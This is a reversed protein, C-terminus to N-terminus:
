FDPQDDLNKWKIGIVANDTEANFRKKKVSLNKHKKALAFIKKGFGRRELRPSSGGGSERPDIKTTYYNWLEGIGIFNEEKGTIELCDEWMEFVGDSNKFINKVEERAEPIDTFGDQAKLREYGDLARNLIGSLEKMIKRNLDDIKKDKEQKVDVDLPLVMLRRAMGETQDSIYPISNYTVCLKARNRFTFTNEFKKEIEVDANGTLAKIMDTERLSDKGAEEAFNALKGFLAAPSFQKNLNKLSVSSFNDKGIVFKMCNLISTKGNNGEGALVLISNYHYECGSVMYGLFEEIVNIFHQRDRTLNKMMLDWTPCEAKPDYDYPLCYLFGYEPSHPLLERTAIKLVGNKFNILGEPTDFFTAERGNNSKVLGWFEERESNKECIPSYHTQAFETVYDKSSKEFHTGNFLYIAGVGRLMIYAHTEEFFRRLDEPKREMKGKANISTFGSNKTAIHSPSKLSIPSRVKGNHPCTGCGDFAKSVSECTFPGCHGKAANLKTETSDNDYRKKDLSSYEHALKGTGDAHGLINLMRFWQPETLKEPNEKAFKLFECNSLIFPVDPTGYQGKTLGEKKTEKNNPLAVPEIDTIFWEQPQLNGKLLQVERKTDFKHPATEVPKINLTNPWRVMVGAKFFDADCEGKLGAESLAKNIDRMWAHYHGAYKDFHELRFDLDDPMIVFHIGGGSCVVFCKEVDVLLAKAIVEPYEYVRSLDIKDIDFGMVTQKVFNEKKKKFTSDYEALTCYVNYPAHNENKFEDELRVSIHSLNQTAHRFSKFGGKTIARTYTRDGNKIRYIQVTMRFKDKM